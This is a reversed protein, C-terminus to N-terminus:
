KVTDIARRFDPIITELFSLLKNREFDHMDWLSDVISDAGGAWQYTLANFGRSGAQVLVQAQMYEDGEFNDFLQIIEKRVELLIKGQVQSAECPIIGPYDRDRLKVRKYGPLIADVGSMEEGAIVKQVEPYMLTGYVFIHSHEM